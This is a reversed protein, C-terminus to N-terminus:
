LDTDDVVETAMFLRQGIFNKADEGNIRGQESNFARDAAELDDFYLESMGDYQDVAPYNSQKFEDVVVNCVFRRLGPLKKVLPIHTSQWYEVFEDHTMWDVRKLVALVKIVPVDGERSSRRAEGKFARLGDGGSRHRAEM